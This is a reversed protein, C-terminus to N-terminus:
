EGQTLPVSVALANNPNDLLVARHKLVQGNYERDAPDFSGYLGNPAYRDIHYAIGDHTTAYPLVITQHALVDEQQAVAGMVRLLRPNRTYATLCDATQQKVFEKVIDTGTGKEQFAPDIIIGALEIARDGFNGGIPPL